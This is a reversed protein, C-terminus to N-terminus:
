SADDGVLFDEIRREWEKVLEEDISNGDYSVNVMIEDEQGWISCLFEGNRARVNARYASYDAAFADEGEADSVADVNYVGKRWGSRGTSSVGCTAMTPNPTVALEGQPSHSGLAEKIHDPLKARLREIATIYNMAIVRGAGRSGMYAKPDMDEPRVRKQYTALQRHALRVLVRFRADLDLASPLFPLVIGDSFALMLSNPAEAHQFFPRPNIPFFGIFPKRSSLPIDPHRLEHLSMMVIAVMVFCGAGVSTGAERCLRHLRQTAPKSVRTFSTFTNLPPTKGYDLIADYRSPMPRASKLPEDTRLPNPFAAPLPKKVHRLVLNFLWFWRARARSGQIRPYLDEQPLPLRNRISQVDSLSTVAGQLESIPTNLIRLFHSLWTYNTLGDTIQHGMVFLFNLNSSEGPHEPLPSVFLKALAQGADIVRGTNQAHRYLERFDVCKYHDQTFCIHQEAEAIAKEPGDPPCLLAFRDRSEYGAAMYDQRGVAKSMLLVHELRTVAWALVIRRRLQEPSGRNNFTLELSANIDARGEYYIGDADFSTEVLGLPRYFCTSGNVQADHWKHYDAAYQDLWHPM